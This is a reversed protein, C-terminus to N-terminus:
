RARSATPVTILVKVGGRLPDTSIWADHLASVGRGGAVVAAEIHERRAAPIGETDFVTLLLGEATVDSRFGVGAWVTLRRCM